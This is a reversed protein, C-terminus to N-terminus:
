FISAIPWSLRVCIAVVELVRKVPIMPESSMMRLRMAEPRRSAIGRKISAAKVEACRARRQRMTEESKCPSMSDPGVIDVWEDALM